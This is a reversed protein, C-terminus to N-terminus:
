EQLHGFSGTAGDTPHVEHVMEWLDGAMIEGHIPPFGGGDTRHMFYMWRDRDGGM